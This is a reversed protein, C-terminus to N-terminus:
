QYQFFSEEQLRTDFEPVVIVGADMDHFVAHWVEFLSIPSPNISDKMNHCNGPGKDLLVQM